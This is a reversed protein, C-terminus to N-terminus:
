FWYKLDKLSDLIIDPNYPMFDERSYMGTTVTISHMENSNACIIYKPTDGVGICKQESSPSAPVRACLWHLMRQLYACRLPTYERAIPDKTKSIQLKTKASLISVM